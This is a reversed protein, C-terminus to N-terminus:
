MKLHVYMLGVAWWVEELIIRMLMAFKSDGLCREQNEKGAEM